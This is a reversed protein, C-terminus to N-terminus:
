WEEEILGYRTIDGVFNWLKSRFCEKERERHNGYIQINFYFPVNYKIYILFIVNEVNTVWDWKEVCLYAILKIKFACWHYLVLFM